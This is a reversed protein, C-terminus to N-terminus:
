QRGHQGQAPHRRGLRVLAERLMQETTMQLLRLEGSADERLERLVAHVQAERFGLHRLASHVKSQVERAQSDYVPIDWCQGTRSQTGLAELDRTQTDRTQSDRTQDDNVAVHAPQRDIDDPHSARVDGYSRGDAHRFRLVGTSNDLVLHRRHVARHHAGCLTILNHAENQGGAARPQVHHLDVYTANSCGPVRCRHRDREIVSRRLAPPITQKARTGVHARSPETCVRPATAPDAPPGAGEGCAIADNAAATGAMFYQADCDAM